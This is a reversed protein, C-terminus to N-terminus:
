GARITDEGARIIGENTRITDKGELLNGLLNAGLTGLLMGPFGGKQKKAENKITESFGRILLSCEELSQVTEMIDNMEENSIILTTM